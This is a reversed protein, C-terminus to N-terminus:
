TTKLYLIKKIFCAMNFTCALSAAIIVLSTKHGMNQSLKYAFSGYKESHSVNTQDSM